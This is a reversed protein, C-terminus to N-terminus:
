GNPKKRGVKRKVVPKDDNTKQKIVRRKLDPNDNATRHDVPEFCLEECQFHDYWHHATIHTPIEGHEVECYPRSKKRLYLSLCVFQEYRGAIKIESRYSETHATTDTTRITVTVTRSDGPALSFSSPEIEPKLTTNENTSRFSTASLVFKSVQEGSNKIDITGTVTEGQCADWDMQCSCHPPCDTEPIECSKRYAQNYNAMAGSVNKLYAEFVPQGIKVTKSVVDNSLRVWQLIFDRIDTDIASQREVTGIAM